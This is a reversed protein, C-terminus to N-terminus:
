GNGTEPRGSSTCSTPSHILFAGPDENADRLVETMADRAEAEAGARELAPAVALAIPVEQGGAVYAAPSSDRIELEGATTSTLALGAGSAIRCCQAGDFWAFRRPAPSGSVRGLIRGLVAIM